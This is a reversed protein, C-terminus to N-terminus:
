NKIQINAAKGVAQSNAFDKNVYNQFTQQDMNLIEVGLAKFKEQIEPRQMAKNLAANLQKVVAPPTGAPSFVGTYTTMDIDKIGLEQLTPVNPLQASRSKTTVALPTIASSKIHPMSATMQDIMTEVQGGILDTIAPGSGKYPVHNLKAGSKLAILEIALHQTSGVGASAVNVPTSKSKAAFDSYNKIPSKASSTLVLPVSHIPGVAILDKTPNYPPNTALAPGISISGSSGLLLTYGDAPSKAVRSSGIFGGAGPRNEVVVSQGLIEAMAPAITRATIDVNGGPAWPVVITIPQRKPFDQAISPSSMLAFSALAATMLLNKKM